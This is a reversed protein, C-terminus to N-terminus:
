RHNRFASPTMDLSRKFHRGLVEPYGFGTREAIKTVTLPTDRLLRKALELRQRRLEESFTRGLHERFKLQLMRSSVNLSSATDTLRLAESLNARMHRLAQRVTQDQIAILDTSARETVGIPKVLQRLKVPKGQLQDDLCKAALYGIRRPGFNLSSLSMGTLTEMVPDYEAGMIAVDDPIRLKAQRCAQVIQLFCADSWTQIAFPLAQDRLWAVLWERRNIWGHGTPRAHQFISVNYGAQEITRTFGHQLPDQPCDPRDDPGLYGFSVFGHELFYSAAMEGGLEGDAIVSPIENPAHESWSVNVAALKHQEIQEALDRHAFRGIVGDGSWDEPIALHERIGRPEIFLEWPGHKHAYDAIGSIVDMGWANSTHILVAIEPYRQPTHSAM